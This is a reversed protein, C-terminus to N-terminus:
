WPLEAWESLLCLVLECTLKGTSGSQGESLHLGAPSHGQEGLEDKLDTRIMQLDHQIYVQTNQFPEQLTQVQQSVEQLDKKWMSELTNTSNAEITLGIFFSCHCQSVRTVKKLSLGTDQNLNM